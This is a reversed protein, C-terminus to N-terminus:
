SNLCKDEPRGIYFGQAFDIGCEKVIEYIEADEVYEAITKIGL